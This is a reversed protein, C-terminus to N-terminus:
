DAILAIVTYSDYSADYSCIAKLTEGAKYTSGPTVLDGFFMVPVGKQYKVGNMERDENIIIRVFPNGNKDTLQTVSEIKSDIMQDGAAAMGYSILTLFAMALIIITSFKKM